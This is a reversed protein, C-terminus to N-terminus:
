HRSGLSLNIDIGGHAYIEYEYLNARQHPEWRAPRGNPALYYRAASVFVTRAARSNDVYAGIDLARHDVSLLDGQEQPVLGEEFITSPEIDTWHVLREAGAPVFQGRYDTVDDTRYEIDCTAYNQNGRLVNDLVQLALDPHERVWPSIAADFM